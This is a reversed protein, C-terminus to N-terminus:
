RLEPRHAIKPATQSSPLVCWLLQGCLRCSSDRCAETLAISQRHRLLERHSECPSIFLTVQGTSPEHMSPVSPVHYSSGRMEM